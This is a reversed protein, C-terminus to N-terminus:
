LQFNEHFDFLNETTNMVPTQIIRLPSIFPSNISNLRQRLSFLGPTQPQPTQQPNPRM